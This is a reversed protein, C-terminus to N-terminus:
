LTQAGRIYIFAVACAGIALMIPRVMALWDCLATFELQHTGFKGLSYPIGAPCAAASAFVVTTMPPTVDVPVLKEAEPATGLKACAVIDPFLKCLTSKDEDAEGNTQATTTTTNSVNTTNNVTTVTTVTTVPYSVSPPNSVTAPQGNSPAKTTPTITQQERTTRTSTTGDANQITETSKVTQPGVLPPATVTAPSNAPVLDAPALVGPQRASDNRVADYLAKGRAPDWNGGTGILGSALEADTYPSGPTSPATQACKLSNDASSTPASGDPCRTFADRATSDNAANQMRCARAQPTPMPAVVFWQNGAAAVTNSGIAWDNCAAVIDTKWTSCPATATCFRYEVGGTTPTAPKCFFDPPPCTAIGSQKAWEYVEYTTYAAGIVSAARVLKVAAAGVAAKSITANATTPVNLRGGNTTVGVNGANSAIIGETIGMTGAASPKALLDAFLASSGSATGSTIQANALTYACLILYFAVLWRLLAKIIM